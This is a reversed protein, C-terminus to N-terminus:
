VQVINRISIYFARCIEILEGMSVYQDLSPKCDYYLKM